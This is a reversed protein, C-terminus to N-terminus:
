GAFLLGGSMKDPLQLHPLQSAMIAVADQRFKPLVAQCLVASSSAPLSAAASKLDVDAVGLDRLLDFTYVYPLEQFSTDLPLGKWLCYWQLQDLNCCKWCIPLQSGSPSTFMARLEDLGNTWMLDQADYTIVGGAPSADTTLPLLQVCSCFYLESLLM